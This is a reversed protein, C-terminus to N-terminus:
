ITLFGIIIKEETGNKSSGSKIFFLKYVFVNSFFNKVKAKLHTTSSM